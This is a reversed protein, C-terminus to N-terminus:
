IRRRRSRYAVLLGVGLCCASGLRASEGRGPVSCGCGAKTTGAGGGLAPLYVTAGAAGAVQAMVGEVPIGGNMSPITAGQGQSGASGSAVAGGAGAGTGSAGNAGAMSGAAGLMGGAGGAGGVGGAGASGGMTLKPCAAKVADLARLSPFARGNKADIRMVGTDIMAKKIQAPTLTPDCELMLAAVGAAAPSAQSTGWYTSTKNNLGDSVIPAGPAVIDLRPPSNTFCAIQDFATTDDGCNAFGAGISGYTQAQPPQHGVSSDYTAGVAIVGTNCAPSSLQTSSGRNGAASFLTVGADVLNKVAAAMAPEGRDCSAADNYLQNSCISMNIVKVKLMDLNDYIWDLGSVWDSQQGSDNQDDVKVAVIEAGPAFGRSSVMGRSAVIGAVNTGHGHDDEATTGEVSFVPQCDGQTFCHQGVVAERLDPHMTVVGTDLVGVRIGKGTLGFMTKVQDGGIAPVAEKLQGSGAGDLQIYAIRPDRRLQELAARTIRAALAPVHRYRRSLTFGDWSASLTEEQMRSTDIRRAERDPYGASPQRFNIIVAVQEDSDHFAQLLEPQLRVSETPTQVDEACGFAIAAV